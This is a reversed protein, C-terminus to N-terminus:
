SLLLGLIWATIVVVQVWRVGVGESSAFASCDTDKFGPFFADLHTPTCATTALPEITECSTTVAVGGDDNNNCIACSECDELQRGGGTEPTSGDVFSLRCSSPATEGQYILTFCGNKYTKESAMQTYEVCSQLQSIDPGLFDVQFLFQGCTPQQNDGCPSCIETSQCEIARYPIESVCECLFHPMRDLRMCLLDFSSVVSSMDQLSRETPTESRVAKANYCLLCLLVSFIVFSSMTPQSIGSPQQRQQLPEVINLYRWTTRTKETNM